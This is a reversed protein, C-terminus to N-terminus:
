APETEPLELRPFIGQPQELQFNSEALQAYWPSCIAKFTRLAPDIGMADLLKAMATPMVPQVAVALQGICIYLTGLVTEMRAFDTKKLAWPAQADVYANCAFVAGMSAELAQAVALDTYAAPMDDQVVRRVHDLLLVRLRQRTISESSLLRQEVAEGTHEVIGTDRLAM